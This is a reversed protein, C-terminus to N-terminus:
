AELMEQIKGSRLCPHVGMWPEPGDNAGGIYRGRVWVSPVSSVSTRSYLKHRMDASAEVVKPDIGAQRLAAIAELCFPCSSSSFVVVPDSSVVDEVSQGPSTEAAAAGLRIFSLM